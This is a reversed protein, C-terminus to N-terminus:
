ALIELRKSDGTLAARRTLGDRFLLQSAYGAHQGFYTQAWKSLVTTTRKQEPYYYAAARAVWTDVPFADSRDLAFLAICNAIKPGIGDCLRLQEVARSTSALTLNHWDLQGAAAVIRSPLSPLGTTLGKIHEEGAGLVTEQDPFTKRLDGDLEAEEGLNDAISEVNAAIREIRSNASCIYAVACQWPDPHRLVRLYPYRRVLRSMSSDREALARRGAEHSGDLRFYSRLVEDLDAKARYELVQQRQRIHVVNANLVGSLWGDKWTRWRFDQTGDLIAELDFYEDVPLQRTRVAM